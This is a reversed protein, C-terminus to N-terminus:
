SDTKLSNAGMSDSFAVKQGTSKNNLSDVSIGPVCYLTISKGKKGHGKPETKENQTEKGGTGPTTRPSM